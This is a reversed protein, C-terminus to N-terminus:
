SSQREKELFEIWVKLRESLEPSEEDIGSEKFVRGPRVHGEPGRVLGSLYAQARIQGKVLFTQELYFRKEDWGLLKTRLCVREFAKVSRKYTITESVTVPVWKKKMATDRLRSNFTIQWRGLGMVSSYTQTFLRGVDTDLLPMAWFHLDFNEFLDRPPSVLCRLILKLFRIRYM